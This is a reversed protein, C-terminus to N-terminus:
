RRTSRASARSRPRHPSRAAFPRGEFQSTQRRRPYVGTLVKILTSKGAGNEGDPRPDRGASSSISGAPGVGPLGQQPAQEGSPDEPM